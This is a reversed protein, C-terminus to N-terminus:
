VNLQYKRRQKKVEKFLISRYKKMRPLWGLIGDAQSMTSTYEMCVDQKMNIISMIQEVVPLLKFTGETLENVMMNLTERKKVRTEQPDTMVPAIADLAFKFERMADPHRIMRLGWTAAGMNPM